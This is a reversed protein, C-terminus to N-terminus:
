EHLNLAFGYVKIGIECSETEILFRLNWLPCSRHMFFVSYFFWWKRNKETVFFNSNPHFSGAPSELTAFKGYNKHRSRRSQKTTYARRYEYGKWRQCLFPFLAIRWHRVVEERRICFTFYTIYTYFYTLIYYVFHLPTTKWHTLLIHFSHKKSNTADLNRSSTLKHPKTLVPYKMFRTGDGLVRTERM